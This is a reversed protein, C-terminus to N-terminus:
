FIKIAIYACAEADAIANHHNKLDYGLYKSVTDLRYNELNPLVKRSQVLSCYFPNTLEPLNYEMLVAKLCSFDFSKNHAVFPLHGVKPLINKWFVDFTDAKLTDWYTIGHIKVFDPVYFNPKPQILAYHRDVIKKNEVFVMGVSCISTRRYNSTEFDIAVFSEM